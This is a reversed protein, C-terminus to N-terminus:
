SSRLASESSTTREPDRNSSSSMEHYQVAVFHFDKSVLKKNKDGQLLSVHDKRDRPPGSIVLVFGGTPGARLKLLDRSRPRPRWKRLAMSVTRLTISSTHCYSFLKLPCTTTRM